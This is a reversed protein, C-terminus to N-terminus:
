HEAAEFTMSKEILLDGTKPDPTRAAIRVLGGPVEPAVVFEYVKDRFGPFRDINPDHAFPRMRVRTAEVTRGNVEVQVTETDAEENFASRIQQQFYTPSGGTLNGMENVDFQLFVLVLPNQDRAPQPGLQRRAEGEFLDFFIEKSGDPAVARVDMVAPSTYTEKMSQGRMEFRYHFTTPETVGSLLHADFVAEAVTAAGAPPATLLALLLAASSVRM